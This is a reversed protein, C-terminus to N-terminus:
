ALARRTAGFGVRSCSRTIRTALLSAVHRHAEVFRLLVLESLLAEDCTVKATSDWREIAM